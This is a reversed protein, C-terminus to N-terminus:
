ALSDPRFYDFLGQSIPEDFRLTMEVVPLAEGANGRMATEIADEAIARGLYYHGPGESDDKQVFVHLEVDGAVIPKVDRSEITRNSKSFWRMTSRDLLADEYATSADVDSAKHLTVFITCVGLEPDTKYGYVTSTASLPWGVMRTADRRAYQMGPTFRRSMSYRSANLARGTRILDDVNEALSTSSELETRFEQTLRVIRDTQEAIGVRYRKEDAQSFGRLALSDVSTRVDLESRGLGYSAFADCVEDISVEDRGVLLELLVTEHLRKTAFAENSLLSLARSAKETLKHEERLLSQVLGPYHEKKTALLVPDVSEFRYFDWLKPIGGTRHQMAVLALRLNTMSDLKNKTISELVRERSLEDFSVSSLGPLTGGEFTENMRERLSERNLTEDGFLAIPILFNNAYNGIMDIVVLHDKGDALRLGRGLQQVFVIASQTQRLMVVQNVTPIDVGENFIDVTLIYDLKGSELEAVRRQREAISDEGTLAVTRLQAGRLSRQNLAESLAAAEDKRSCFILGRPAVGAQGYKDLAGILHDIREATILRALDTDVSTTTGDDYVVDTIGYYHFPSLMEAELAHNLRIEYPVVYNFLEFVNFGDTREPTATMGLLFNPTLHDIIRRYTEAGARHAEDIIVYDFADSAISALVDDQALTQVTAFVFRRDSQKAGGTLKGFDSEPLDFVRRYEKITRDLIQERHAIFLLRDPNVNRVDLASLMTKGTGTASIIVARPAGEARALDIELLADQQMANPVITPETSSNSDDIEVPVPTRRAPALYTSAYKEVWEETLPESSEVEEDLLVGLQNALDSDDAASVRLNWEHNTSLAQSTLNSSGIVATVCQDQEFIYGKPHFGRATHRRVDIETHESLKLLEAFAQPQNFGLFDSTIVRGTGDFELLHQKLQAIAGPTVFAVSFTFRSSRNLEELLTHEVTSGGHNLVLQPNHQRPGSAARDIYGFQVDDAFERPRFVHHTSV